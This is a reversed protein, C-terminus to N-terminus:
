DRSHRKFNAAKVTKYTKDFARKAVAKAKRTAEVNKSALIAARRAQLAYPNLRVMASLNKLPNKKLHSRTVRTRKARLVSQVETSNIIRTVDSMTMVARPLSYGVKSGATEYTGWIKDLAEFASKTWIIFRGVHGGPALQLLNLSNVNAVEVGQVNRVARVIGEDKAVVVLPGRRQTFRRNRMKGKGARMKRSNAVRRIDGFAGAKTLLALAEKTKKVAQLSDSVVLPIETVNAIRHGRAMVLAPLASAALASAVAYRKQNTNLKRHWKRWTKTPHALRGKRCMNAFAGQGSRSTGGGAVRPVRAVARGTGWSAASHQMGSRDSVAYAQRSNKAMNTHVFNVIDPRIPALFVAPLTVQSGKEGAALTKM